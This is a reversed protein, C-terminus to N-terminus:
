NRTRFDQARRRFERRSDARALNWAESLRVPHLRSGPRLSIVSQGCIRDPAGNIPCWRRTLFTFFLLFCWPFGPVLWHCVAGCTSCLAYCGGCDVRFIVRRATHVSTKGVAPSVARRKTTRPTGVKREAHRADDTSRSSRLEPLSALASSMRFDVSNSFTTAVTEM